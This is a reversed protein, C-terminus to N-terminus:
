GKGHRLVKGPRIERPLAEGPPPLLVGNVLVHAIGNPRSVLRDAGGPQDHVRELPGAAVQEPDFVVVDAPAGVRLRGREELGFVQANRSTLLRVGEELSFVKKERVWKRLFDTPYCADCLQSVHAGGDGLGVVINPDRLIEELVREDHNAVAVRMRLALRSAIAMDLWLDVVDQGREAALQYLNRSELAPDPPYWSIELTRAVKRQTDGEVTGGSFDLDHTGPGALLTRLRQRLHPDGYLALKEQTSRASLITRLPPWSQLPAPEALDFEFVLPRPSTQPIMRIGRALADASAQLARRHGDAGLLDSLVATYCLTGGSAAALEEFEALPLQRPGVIGIVGRGVQRLVQALALRERQDSLRSPVPKGDFGFHNTTVSTSFGLAGAAMAEALLQQMRAIEDDTAAREASAPGMVFLRLASHGVFGAVNIGVGRTEVTDLYEPYTTFGWDGLGKSLADYSMGEVREFLRLVLDRHEARTPAVTFGCNGIVVSTVGHWPSVTLLPDWLVQADYHTHIDVFGPAVVLGRADLTIRADGTVSGLAAIRGARIGLDGAFRPAGTGDVVVGGTIKIDYPKQM